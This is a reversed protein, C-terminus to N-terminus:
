APRRPPAPGSLVPHRRTPEVLVCGVMKGGLADFATQLGKEHLAHAPIRMKDAAIQASQHPFKTRPGDM